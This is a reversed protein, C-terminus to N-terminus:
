KEARGTQGIGRRIMAALERAQQRSLGATMSQYSGVTRLMLEVGVDPADAGGSFRHV